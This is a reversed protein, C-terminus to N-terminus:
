STVYYKGSFFVDLAFYIDEPMYQQLAAKLSNVCNQMFGDDRHAKPLLAVSILVHSHKYEAAPYARSKCVGASDDLDNIVSEITQFIGEAYLKLNNSYKLEVQPM